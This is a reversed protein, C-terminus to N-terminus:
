GEFTVSFIFAKSRLSEINRTFITDDKILLNPIGLSSKFELSLKFYELFFDFGGGIDISYDYDIIKIIKNASIGQNVNKQSQMDRSYKGGTLMYAAFNKSRNTRFKFNIPLDLYVSEVRTKELSIQRDIDLFSYELLRDQFSLGPFFRIHFNPVPDYSALLNLNFGPQPNLDIKLLSDTFEFDTKRNMSFNASNFGIIFGFHYQDRDFKQLNTASRQASCSYANAVCFVVLVGLGKIYDKIKLSYKL